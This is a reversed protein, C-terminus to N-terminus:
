NGSRWERVIKNVTDVLDYSGIIVKRGLENEVQQPTIDDLFLGDRNTCNPPLFILDGVEKQKRLANIMDAGTLLGTVTVTPGFFANKAAVAKIQLGPIISLRDRVVEKILRFASVGTLLTINLKRGLSKPLLEQKAHFQNLFERMMGVGNETQDFDDYYKKRPIDLRAKLFSEDSAYVFGAKLKKRFIKQWGEVLKILNLSYKKGIPRIRPLNQRYRTLGVPVLALSKVCPYLAALEKVSRELYEGDNVGPCLVIQAHMEIGGKALRRIIPMVEPIKPNRFIKRRLNEDTTHVSVYLPSLKQEIIRDIDEESTNTLTIFNGNLFSLRYDEDKFYLSRRMGKPLQHVFCFICNNNCSRYRTEYFELGLNQDPAKRLKIKKEKGTKDRLRLALTSESSYFRYDIIDSVPHRNIELLEDEPLILHRSAIGGSTVSKIKM